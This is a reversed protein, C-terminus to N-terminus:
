GIASIEEPAMRNRIELAPKGKREGARMDVALPELAVWRDASAAVSSVHILCLLFAALM